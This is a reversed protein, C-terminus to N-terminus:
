FLLPNNQKVYRNLLRAAYSQLSENEYPEIWNLVEVDFENSRIKSFLREDAGLGPICYLVKRM